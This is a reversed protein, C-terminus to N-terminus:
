LNRVRMEAYLKDVEAPDCLGTGHTFLAATGASAAYRLAEELPRQEVLKALLGGLFSDGAGVTTSSKVKPVAVHWAQTHTMLVAGM